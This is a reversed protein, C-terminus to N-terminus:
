SYVKDSFLEHSDKHIVQFAAFLLALPLLARFLENTERLCVYAAASGVIISLEFLTSTLFRRELLRM